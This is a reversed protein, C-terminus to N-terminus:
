KEVMMMAHGDPDRVMIGKKFGLKGGPLDSIRPTVFRVDNNRLWKAVSDVDDVVLQTQWHWIDNARTNLPLPRGGPPTEYELFEMNPPKVPPGMGTIRVRAGFLNDLREQTIGLNLGHGLIKMGLLDRYFKVSAKTDSVTIATHDIGLFLKGKSQHWRPLGKGTPFWLLELNHGDPDRFKFAKIGAAGVNSKPITQPNPSIQRVKYERVRQYASDMDSVVIAIHQFWLDNSRSPVPIPRGDPPAIYQTLRISQDGLKMHVVRIRLGFVGMLREYESGALETDSVMQFSLVKSFFHVSRDMESVTMGISGLAKVVGNSQPQQALGKPIGLGLVFLSWLVLLLLWRVKRHSTKKGHRHTHVHKTKLFMTSYKDHRTM